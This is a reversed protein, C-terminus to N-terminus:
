LRSIRSRQILFNLLINTMQVNYEAVHKFMTATRRHEDLQAEVGQMSRATNFKLIQGKFSTCSSDLSRHTTWVKGFVNMRITSSPRSPLM